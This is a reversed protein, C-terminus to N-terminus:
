LGQLLLQTPALPAERASGAAAGQLVRKSQTPGAAQPLPEGTHCGVELCVDRWEVNHIAAVRYHETRYCVIVRSSSQLERAPMPCTASSAQAHKAPGSAQRPAAKSGVKALWGRQAAALAPRLLRGRRTMTISGVLKLKRLKKPNVHFTTDDEHYRVLCRGQHPHSPDDVISLVTARGHQKVDVLDGARFEAALVAM